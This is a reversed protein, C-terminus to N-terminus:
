RYYDISPLSTFCRKKNSDFDEVRACPQNLVVVESTFDPGVVDYRLFKNLQSNLSKSYLPFPNTYKYGLVEFYRIAKQEFERERSIRWQFFLTCSFFLIFVFLNRLSLM